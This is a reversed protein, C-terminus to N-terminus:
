ARQSEILLIINIKKIRYALYTAYNGRVYCSARLLAETAPLHFALSVTTVAHGAAVSQCVWPDLYSCYFM